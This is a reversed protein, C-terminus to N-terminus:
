RYPDPSALYDQVYRRLGEELSLANAQFGATRLRDMRAETFYQYKERIAEPTPVFAIDPERGLAAFVGTALDLFSRAKGSGVNFLGSVEPQGALWLMADVCDDVHVFDRLQGGDAYDPRHSKFLRAAEGRGIQGFLHWAVSAQGGKHYENPGYVNFFKLGAWHPPSPWGEETRRAVWRDFAHKSWGYANLPRLSALYGRDLSDDFGQAGDGYTAASSAYILPVGNEACWTWLKQSLLLNNAVLADADTETTSSIAGMHYILDLEGGCEELWADLAEPRILAELERKALNRWKDGQGLRDSVAVREGRADLAAVLNSGIFGAGGTVLIM